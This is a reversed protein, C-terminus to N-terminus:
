PHPISNLNYALNPIQLLFNASFNCKPFVQLALQHVWYGIKVANDLKRNFIIQM